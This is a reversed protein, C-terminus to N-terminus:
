AGRRNLRPRRVGLGGLIGAILVLGAFSALSPPHVLIDRWLPWVIQDTNFAEDSFRCLVLSADNQLMEDEIKSILANVAAHDARPMDRLHLLLARGGALYAHACENFPSAEDTLSGPVLGWLCAFSQLSVYDQLRRLTLDSEIQADALEWIASFNRAIVAMQGHTLSSIPIGAPPPGSPAALRHAEAPSALLAFASVLFAFLRTM